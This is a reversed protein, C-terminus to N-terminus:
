VCWGGDAITTSARWLWPVLCDHNDESSGRGRAGTLYGEASRSDTVLIILSM